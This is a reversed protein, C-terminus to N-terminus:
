SPVTNERCCVRPSSQSWFGVPHFPKWILPCLHVSSLGSPSRSPFYPLPFVAILPFQLLQQLLVVGPIDPCTHLFYRTMSFTSPSLLVASGMVRQSPLYKRKGNHTQGREGRLGTKKMTMGRCHSWEMGWEECGGMVGKELPCYQSPTRVYKQIVTEWLIGSLTICQVSSM